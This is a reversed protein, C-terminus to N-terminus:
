RFWGAYTVYRNATAELSTALEAKVSGRNKAPVGAWMTGEPVITDELVVAGAAIVAGSGIVAGDMVVAGMGVLVNEGINAGHVIARHGISAGDGITTESKQFTGHIVAGDQINVRNGISIRAVDGRVIAQFWISCSQGMVINGVLTANPAIWCSSDFTPSHGQCDLILPQPM